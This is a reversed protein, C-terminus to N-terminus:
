PALSWQLAYAHNEDSPPALRVWDGHKLDRFPFGEYGSVAFSDRDDLMSTAIASDVWFTGDPQDSPWKPGDIWDPGWSNLCLLGPRDHRVAIFCMAHAWQGSARAFGQADRHSTFGQMSCVAVPYGAEIAAAAEDFSTALAVNRIPFKRAEADLRGKDGQGGCGYYGWQKARDASYSSVDVLGPYDRRHVIGWQSVWKAAAAGYTGDSWGGTSRGAGEVRAGGYIAETAAPQWDASDGLQYQVALHIDAAHAWAWSVCDGIGQSGVVWDRGTKERCTRVLARYLLVPENNAGKFLGPGAERITPRPLSQEYAKAAEPNPTYGANIKDDGRFPRFPTRDPKSPDDPKDPRDPRPTPRPGPAPQPPAVPGCLMNIGALITVIAAAISFLRGLTVLPKRQTTPM